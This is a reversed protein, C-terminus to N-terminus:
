SGPASMSGDDEPVRFSLREFENRMPQPIHAQIRLTLGDLNPIALERAYLQLPGAKVGSDSGYKTDGCIPCGIMACHVRLQHTRGTAPQLELWTIGESSGRTKYLTKADRGTPSSVIRRRGRTSIKSLNSRIRGARPNPTGRVLAWYIKQALGDRFIKACHQAAQRSRALLLVGTTDRDLRHVLRPREDSGFRLADLMSDLHLRVGSGGQVALGSPKDLAIFHRDKYLVRGQLLSAEKVSPVPRSAARAPQQVPPVRVKQGAALRCSAPSRRGDVRVQGTRILRQILAFPIDPLHERLWRDLRVGDDDNRVTAPARKGTM